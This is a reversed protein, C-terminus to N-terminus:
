SRFTIGAFPMLNRETMKGGRESYLWQVSYVVVESTNDRILKLEESYIMAYM